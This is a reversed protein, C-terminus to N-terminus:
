LHVLVAGEASLVGNMALSLSSPGMGTLFFPPVSHRFLFSSGPRSPPSPSLSWVRWPPFAGLGLGVLVFARSKLRPRNKRSSFASSFLDGPGGPCIGQFFVPITMTRTMTTPMMTQIKSPMALETM